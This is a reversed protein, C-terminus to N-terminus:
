RNNHQRGLRVLLIHSENEETCFILLREYKHKIVGIYNVMVIPYYVSIIIRFLKTRFLISSFTSYSCTCELDEYVVYYSLHVIQLKASM